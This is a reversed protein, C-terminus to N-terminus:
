GIRHRWCWEMLETPTAQEVWTMALLDPREKAIGLLRFRLREVLEDKRAITEAAAIRVGGRRPNGPSIQLLKGESDYATLEEECCWPELYLEAAEVSAFTLLDDWFVFIPPCITDAM